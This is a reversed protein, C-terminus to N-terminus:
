IYMYIVNTEIFLIHYQQLLQQYAIDYSRCMYVRVQHQGWIHDALKFYLYISKLLNLIRRQKTCWTIVYLVLQKFNTNLNKILTLETKYSITTERQTEECSLSDFVVSSIGQNGDSNFIYMKGQSLRLIEFMVNQTYLM